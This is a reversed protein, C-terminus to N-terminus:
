AAATPSCFTTRRRRATRSRSACWSAQAPCPPGPPSCRADHPPFPTHTHPPCPPRLPRPTATQYDPSESSLLPSVPHSSPSPESGCTSLLATTLTLRHAHRQTTGTHLPFTRRVALGSTPWSASSATASASASRTRTSSSAPAMGCCTMGKPSWTSKCRRWFTSMLWRPRPLARSIIRPSPRLPIPSPEPRGSTGLRAPNLTHM